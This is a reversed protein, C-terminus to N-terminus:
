RRSLWGSAACPYRGQVDEVKLAALADADVRRSRAAGVVTGQLGKGEEGRVFRGGAALRRATM